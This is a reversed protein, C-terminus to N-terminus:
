AGEDYNKRSNRHLPPGYFYYGELRDIEEEIEDIKNQFTRSKEELLAIRTGHSSDLKDRKGFYGSLTIFISILIALIPLVWETDLSFSTM